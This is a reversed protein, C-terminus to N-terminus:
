LLMALLWGSGGRLTSKRSKFTSNGCRPCSEQFGADSLDLPNSMAFLDLSNIRYMSLAGTIGLGDGMWTSVM